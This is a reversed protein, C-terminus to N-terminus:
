EPHCLEGSVDVLFVGDIREGIFFLDGSLGQYRDTGDLFDGWSSLVPGLPNGTRSSFMGTERLRLTGHRNTTITLIGSFVSSGPPATAPPPTSSDGAFVVTGTLGFNGVITGKSLDIEAHIRRCGDGAQAPGAAALLALGAALTLRTGLRIM